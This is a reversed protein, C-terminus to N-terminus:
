LDIIETRINLDISEGSPVTVDIQYEQMNPLIQIKNMKLVLGSNTLFIMNTTEFVNGFISVWNFFVQNNIKLIYIKDYQIMFEIKTSVMEGNNPGTLYKVMAYITYKRKTTYNTPPITQFASYELITNGDLIGINNHNGSTFTNKYNYVTPLTHTLQTKITQLRSGFNNISLIRNRLANISIKKIGAPTSILLYEGGNLNTKLTYDEIKSM